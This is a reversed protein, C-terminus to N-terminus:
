ALDVFPSSRHFRKALQKAVQERQYVVTEVPDDDQTMQRQQRPRFVDHVEETVHVANSGDGLFDQPLPGGLVILPHFSAKALFWPIGM